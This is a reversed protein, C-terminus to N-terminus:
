GEKHMLQQINGSFIKEKDERPIKLAEVSTVAEGIDGIVHPYDSGMIMHDAGVFAYTCM